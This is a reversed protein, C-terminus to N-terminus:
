SAYAVNGPKCCIWGSPILMWDGKVKICTVVTGKKLVAKKTNSLSNKRADKTLATRSKIDYNTGAGKRVNLSARLKYDKGQKVAVKTTTSKT